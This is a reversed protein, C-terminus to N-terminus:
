SSRALLRAATARFRESTLLRGQVRACRRLYDDDPLGTRALETYGGLAERGVSAWDRVRDVAAAVPDDAVIGLGLAAAERGSMAPEGLLPWVGGTVLRDLLAAGGTGPILGLAAWGQAIRASPALFRLDCWLALDLGLGVAAGGVAAVTPVPCDRLSRAMAQFDGYVHESVEAASRGEVMAAIAPLDGGACFAGEGTVVVGLVSPDAGARDVAAALERADAARLANRVQPRRIWVTGVQDRVELEIGATM